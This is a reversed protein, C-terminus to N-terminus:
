LQPVAGIRRVADCLRAAGSQPTGVNEIVLDPSLDDRDAALRDLREAVDRDSGRSRAVLRAALVERPATVLIVVVCAYRERLRPVLARSVNCVVTRGGHIEADIAAPLAYKLGHAEWSFAFAGQGRMAEFEADPVSEHEEAANSPRTVVRRPFVIQPDDACSARALAILTDKGAGSPGVVLLLAGPGIRQDARSAPASV